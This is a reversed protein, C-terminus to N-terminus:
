TDVPWTRCLRTQIKPSAGVFPGSFLPHMWHYVLDVTGKNKLKQTISPLSAHDPARGLEVYTDKGPDQTEIQSVM